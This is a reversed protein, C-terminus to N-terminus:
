FRLSVGVAGPELLFRPGRIGLVRWRGNMLKASTVGVAAGALVDSLWHRDDNLRSWGTLGAAGYLLISVPLRHVEDSVGAALAFAMTTHGSPWSDNGSFPRFHFADTPQDPRRRGVAEKLISSVLGATLLGASIREGARTLPRNGTLIGVAITGLGVTGYVAPEGMRRFTRAVDDGSATRHQQLRDRLSEDVLAAAAVAGLGAGVHYWRVATPGAPVIAPRGPASDVQARLRSPPPLLLGATLCLAGIHNRM